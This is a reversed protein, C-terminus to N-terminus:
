RSAKYMINRYNHRHRVEKDGEKTEEVAEEEEEAEEEVGGQGGIWPIGGGSLLESIDVIQPSPSPPSAEAPLLELGESFGPPVRLLDTLIYCM